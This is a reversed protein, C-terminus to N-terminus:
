KKKGKGKGQGKDAKEKTSLQKSKDKNKKVKANIEVFNQGSGRMKIVEDPSYGYHQSIFKLNVFNVIEVDTLRIAGWDAKKKNKFHGYAKGYPPGPDHKVPVYFIEATLGYHIAIDMWSKGSLRLKIIVSPKQGTREALFFVVPLEEDPVKAERVIVVQKEPVGYHDSIALHFSSIGDRDVTLGIEVGAPCNASMLGLLVFALLLKIFLARMVM